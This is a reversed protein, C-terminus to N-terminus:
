LEKAPLNALLYRVANKYAVKEIQTSTLGAVRMADWLRGTHSVSSVGEPLGSMVGGFDTGLAVADEGMVDIARSLHALVHALTYPQEPAITSGAFFIGLVGGRESVQRLQADSYNRRHPVITSLGGHSIFPPRTVVDMCDAFMVANMHAFDMLISRAECWAIYERGCATLGIDSHTGGGLPTDENWVMGVSRLGQAYWVDLLAEDQPVGPLGEIHFLFGHATDDQLLAEVDQATRVMRWAPDAECVARYWAFDRAIVEELREGPATFGTGLVLKAGAQRLLLPNIQTRLVPYQEASAIDEHLDIFIQPTM